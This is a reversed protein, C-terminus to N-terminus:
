VGPTLLSITRDPPRFVLGPSGVGFESKALNITNIWKYARPMGVDVPDATGYILDPPSLVCDVHYYIGAGAKHEKGPPLVSM